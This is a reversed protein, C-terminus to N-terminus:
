GRGFGGRGGGDFLVEGLVWGFLFLLCVAAAVAAVVRGASVRAGPGNLSARLQEVAMTALPRWGPAAPASSAPALDATLPELDRRHVAGFAAAMRESGEDPPLLGRAVADQLVGVTAFRDADSARMAPPTGPPPSTPPAPPVSGDTGTLPPM